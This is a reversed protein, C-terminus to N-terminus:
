EGGGKFIKTLYADSWDHWGLRGTAGRNVRSSVPLWEGVGSPHTHWILLAGTLYPAIKAAKIKGGHLSSAEFRHDGEATVFRFEYTNKM